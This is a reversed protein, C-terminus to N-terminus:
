NQSRIITPFKQITIKLQIKGCISNTVFRTRGVCGPRVWHSLHNQRVRYKDSVFPGMPTGVSRIGLFIYKKRTIFRKQFYRRPRSGVALMSIRYVVSSFGKKLCRSLLVSRVGINVVNEKVLGQRIAEAKKEYFAIFSGESRM